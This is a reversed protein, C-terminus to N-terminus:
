FLGKCAFNRGFMSEALIALLHGQEHANDGRSLMHKTVRCTLEELWELSGIKLVTAHKDATAKM